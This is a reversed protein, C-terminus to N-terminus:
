TRTQTRRRLERLYNAAMRRDRQSELWGREIRVCFHSKRAPVYTAKVYAPGPSGVTYEFEMRPLVQHAPADIIREYLVDGSLLDVRKINRVPRRGRPRKNDDLAGLGAARRDSMFMMIALDIPENPYRAHALGAVDLHLWATM